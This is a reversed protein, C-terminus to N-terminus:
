LGYVKASKTEKITISIADGNYMQVAPRAKCTPLNLVPYDHLKKIWYPLQKELIDNEIIERQWESFDAYQVVLEAHDSYHWSFSTYFESLEGLFVTRSWGDFIIHHISLILLFEESDLSLLGARLLPGAALDFPHLVIKQYLERIKEEQEEQSLYGVDEGAEFRNYM